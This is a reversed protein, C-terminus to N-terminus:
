FSPPRRFPEMTKIEIFVQREFGNGKFYLVNHNKKDMIFSLPIKWAGTNDREFLCIYDFTQAQELIGYNFGYSENKRFLHDERSREVFFYGRAKDIYGLKRIRTESKLKLELKIHEGDDTAIVKNGDSDLRESVRPKQPSPQQQQKSM